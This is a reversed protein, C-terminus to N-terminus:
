RRAGCDVLRGGPAADDTKVQGAGLLPPARREDSERVVRLGVAVVTVWIRRLQPRGGGGARSLNAVWSGDVLLVFGGRSSPQRDVDVCSCWRRSTWNHETRSRGGHTFQIWSTRPRKVGRRRTFTSDTPTQVSNSAVEVTSGSQQQLPQPVPALHEDESHVIVM